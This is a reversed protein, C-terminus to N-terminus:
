SGAARDRRLWSLAAGSLIAGLLWGALVDSPWHVGLYLRGFGVYLPLVFTVAWSLRRARPGRPRFSWALLPFFAASSLAHGSPFAWGGSVVPGRWLDPRPRAVLPKVVENVALVSLGVLIWALAERREGRVRHAAAICLCLVIGAQLTGLYHSAVFAGDLLPSAARHIALLLETETM